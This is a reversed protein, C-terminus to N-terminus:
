YFRNNKLCERQRRTRQIELDILVRLSILNYNEFNSKRKAKVSINGAVTSFFNQTADLKCM